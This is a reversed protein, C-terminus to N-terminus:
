FPHAPAQEEQQRLHALEELLSLATSASMLAPRLEPTDPLRMCAQLQEMSLAEMSWTAFGRTSIQTYDMLTVQEHRDDRLIRAYLDNITRASGELVQLFHTQSFALFGTIQQKKNNEMSRRLLERMQAQSLTNQHVSYYLLRVLHM